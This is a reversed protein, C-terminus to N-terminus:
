FSICFCPFIAEARTLHKWAKRSTLVSIHALVILRKRGTSCLNLLSKCSLARSITSLFDQLTSYSRCLCPNWLWRTEFYSCKLIRCVQVYIIVIPLVYICLVLSVFLLLQVVCSYLVYLVFYDPLRFSPLPPTVHGGLFHTVKGATRIPGGKTASPISNSLLISPLRAIRAFGRFLDKILWAVAKCCHAM